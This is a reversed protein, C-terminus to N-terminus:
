EGDSRPEKKGDVFRQWGTGALMLLGIFIFLSTSAIVTMGVFQAFELIAPTECTM